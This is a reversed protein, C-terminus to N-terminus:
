ARFAFHEVHFMETSCEQSLVAQGVERLRVDSVAERTQALDMSCTVGKGGVNISLDPPSPTANGAAIGCLREVHFM